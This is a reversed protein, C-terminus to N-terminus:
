CFGCLLILTSPNLTCPELITTKSLPFEVIKSSGLRYSLYIRYNPCFIFYHERIELNTLPWIEKEIIFWVNTLVPCTHITKRDKQGFFHYNIHGKQLSGKLYEITPICTISNICESM